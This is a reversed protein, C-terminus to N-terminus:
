GAAQIMLDPRLLVPRGENWDIWGHSEFEALLRNVNPRSMGVMQALEGQTMRVAVTIVGDSSQGYDEALDLLKRALRTPADFFVLDQTAQDARRLRRGMLELLRRALAPRGEMMSWFVDGALSFLKSDEMARADMERTGRDVVALEGFIQGRGLVAVLLEQGTPSATTLKVRGTDILFFREAPEGERFIVEGRRYRIAHFKDALDRMDEGRLV